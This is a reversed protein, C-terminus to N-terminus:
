SYISLTLTYSGMQGDIGLLEIDKMLQANLPQSCLMVIRSIIINFLRNHRVSGCVAYM